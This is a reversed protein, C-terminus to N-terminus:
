PIYMTKQSMINNGSLLSCYLTFMVRPCAPFGFFERSESQQPRKVTSTQSRVGLIKSSAQKHFRVVESGQNYFESCSTARGASHWTDSNARRAGGSNKGKDGM